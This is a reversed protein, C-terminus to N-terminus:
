DDLGTFSRTKVLVVAAPTCVSPIYKGAVERKTRGKGVGFRIWLVNSGKDKEFVGRSLGLGQWIRKM